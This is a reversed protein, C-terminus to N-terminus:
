KGICFKGFITGLIDKDVDIAGTITGINRLADKLHYSLLDGSLGIALGNKVEFIAKQSESLAEYHRANSIIIDSQPKNQNFADLLAKTLNNKHELPMEHAQLM